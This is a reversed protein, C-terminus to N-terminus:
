YGKPPRDADAQDVLAALNDGNRSVGYHDHSRDLLEFAKLALRDWTV